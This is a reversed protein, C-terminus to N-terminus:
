LGCNQPRSHIFLRWIYFVLNLLRIRSLFAVIVREFGLGFYINKNNREIKAVRGLINEKPILGDPNFVRDGKILYFGNAEGVVRHIILKDTQPNVFAAAQGFNTSSNRLPSITVVDNNKIFPSMSFGKVKLRFCANKALTARALETLALSSLLFEDERMTLFESEVKNQNM